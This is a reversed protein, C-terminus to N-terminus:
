IEEFSSHLILVGFNGFLMLNIETVKSKLSARLGQSSCTHMVHVIGSIKRKCKGGLSKIAVGMSILM